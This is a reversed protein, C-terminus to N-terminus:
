PLAIRRVCFPRYPRDRHYLRLGSHGVIIEFVERLYVFRGVFFCFLLAYDHIVFDEEASVGSRLIKVNKKHLFKFIHGSEITQALLGVWDSSLQDAALIHLPLACDLAHLNAFDHAVLEHTFNGQFLEVCRNILDGDSPILDPM